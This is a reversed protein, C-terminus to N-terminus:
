SSPRDRAENKKKKKWFADTMRGGGIQELNDNCAAIVGIVFKNVHSPREKFINPKVWYEWSPWM